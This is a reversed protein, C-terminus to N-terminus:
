TRSTPAGGNGVAVSQVHYDFPLTVNGDSCLIQGDATVIQWIPAAGGASPRCRPKRTNAAAPAARVLAAQARLENDVQGLLQERVVVYVVLAALLIALAVASACAIALRRRLPM